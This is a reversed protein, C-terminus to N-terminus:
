AVQEAHVDGSKSLAFELLRRQYDREEQSVNYAKVMKWAFEVLEDKKMAYLASKTTKNM